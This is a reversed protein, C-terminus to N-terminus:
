AFQEVPITVERNAKRRHSYVDMFDGEIKKLYAPKLTNNEVINVNNAHSM